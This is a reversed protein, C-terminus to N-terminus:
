AETVGRSNRGANKEHNQEAQSYQGLLNAKQLALSYDGKHSGQRTHRVDDGVPSLLM